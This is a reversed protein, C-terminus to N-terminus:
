RLILSTVRELKDPTSIVDLCMKGTDREVKEIIRLLKQKNCGYGNLVLAVVEKGMSNKILNMHPEIEETTSWKSCLVIKDPNSGLLIQWSVVAGARAEKVDM